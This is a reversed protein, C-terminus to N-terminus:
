TFASRVEPKLLVYLAWIGIPVGALCCFCAGPMIAFSGAISLWYSRLWLMNFGAWVATGCAVSFALFMMIGMVASARDSTKSSPEGVNEGKGASYPKARNEGRKTLETSKARQTKDSLPTVFEDVFGFGAMFLNFLLGLFGAIIIAMAPGKVLAAAQAVAASNPAPHRIRAPAVPLTYGSTPLPPPAARAAVEDEAAEKERASQKKLDRFKAYVTLIAGILGIFTSIFTLVDILTGM